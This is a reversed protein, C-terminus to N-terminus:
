FCLKTGAEGVNLSVTAGLILARNDNFHGSPFGFAVPIKRYKLHSIILEEISLGFPAETDLNETMGGVIIGNIQDLVGSKQLGYFMRDIKYIYESLDEIFLVSNTYDIQDNTGLLSCLVSLNGGVLKGRARDFANHSTPDCTIEYPSGTLVSILSDLSDQSNEAFNLPMTGHISQVGLHDLRSHFVTIDSFGVIWKPARLM